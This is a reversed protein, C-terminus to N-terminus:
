KSEVGEEERRGLGACSSKVEEEDEGGGEEDEEEGGEDDLENRLQRPREHQKRTLQSNSFTSRSM